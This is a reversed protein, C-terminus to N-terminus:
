ENNKFCINKSIAVEETVGETFGWEHGEKRKGGNAIVSLTDETERTCAHQASTITEMQLHPQLFAPSYPEVLGSPHVSPLHGRQHARQSRGKTRQNVAMHEAVYGPVRQGANQSKDAQIAHRTSVTRPHGASQM